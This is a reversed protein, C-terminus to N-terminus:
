KDYANRILCVAPGAIREAKRMYEASMSLYHSEKGLGKRIEEDLKDESWPDHREVRPISIGIMDRGPIPADIRVRFKPAGLMVALEDQYKLIRDIYTGLAIRCAFQIEDAEPNVEVVKLMVGYASYFQEIYVVYQRLDKQDDNSEARKLPKPLDPNM